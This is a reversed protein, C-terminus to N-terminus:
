VLLGYLFGGLGLMALALWFGFELKINEDDGSSEDDWERM